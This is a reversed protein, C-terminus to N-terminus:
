AFPDFPVDDFLSAATVDMGPARVQRGGTVAVQFLVVVGNAQTRRGDSEVVTRPVGVFQTRLM